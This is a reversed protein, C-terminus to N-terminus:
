IDIAQPEGELREISERIKRMELKNQRNVVGEHLISMCGMIAPTAAYAKTKPDLGIEVLRKSLAPAANALVGYAEELCLNFSTNIIAEADPHSRWQQMEYRTTKALKAAVEWTAGEGKAILGRRINEPIENKISSLTM